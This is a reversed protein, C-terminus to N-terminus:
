VGQRPSMGPAPHSKLDNVWVSLLVLRNTKRVGLTTCFGSSAVSIYVLLFSSISFTSSPLMLIYLRCGASSFFCYAGSVQVIPAHHISKYVLFCCGQTRSQMGRQSHSDYRAVRRTSFCSSWLFCQSSARQPAVLGCCCCREISESACDGMQSEWQSHRLLRGVAGGTHILYEREVLYRVVDGVLRRYDVAPRASTAEAYAPLARAGVIGVGRRDREGM